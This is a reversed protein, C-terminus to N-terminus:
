VDLAADPRVSDNFRQTSMGVKGRAIHEQQRFDVAAHSPRLVSKNRPVNGLRELEVVRKSRTIESQVLSATRLFMRFAVILLRQVTIRHKRPMRHSTHM